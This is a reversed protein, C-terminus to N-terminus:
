APPSPDGSELRQRITRVIAASEDTLRGEILKRKLGGFLGSLVDVQSRNIYVLYRLGHAADEVVTTVGLSGSRYHTAFIEKGLVLVAPAGPADPRVIDVHTVSIVRKGTGYQEKSWYLFSEGGPLDGHPADKLRAAVHPLREGLYPSGRLIAALADEPRVPERRHAYPPLGALGDARYANVRELVARRFEQRIAARWSQGAAAAAARLSQIERAGLHVACDGARCRAIADVDGEDLILGNLDELVPPDSFRRIALVFASQKLQAIAHTWTVLAEPSVDLRSAAFVSLEGDRAPLVRVIVDGRALRQRDSFDVTVPPQFFAFPDGRGSAATHAHIGTLIAAATCALTRQYMVDASRTNPVANAEAAPRGGM